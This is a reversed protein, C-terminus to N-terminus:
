EKIGSLAISQVLYRQLPLLVFIPIIGVIVTGAFMIGFDFYYQGMYHALEVPAVHMTQKSIILLPWLYAQWQWIFLLLGAGILAPVSIPLYIRWFINWLSAGDALAAEKLEKPIGLFFQRLLFIALGNALGPLILGAYTNMLGWERFLESLPVAIAEFPIMFSVVIIYFIPERFRFNLASLSFAAAASLLVGFIVTASAVIISNLVTRPFLDQFLSHFNEFTLKEIPLFAKLSLPFMYKFINEQPRLSSSLMWIIPLAFMLAILVAIITLLVRKTLDVQRKEM